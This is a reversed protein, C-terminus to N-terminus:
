RVGARLMSYAEGLRVYLARITEQNTETALKTEIEQITM